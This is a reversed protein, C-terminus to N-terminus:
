ENSQDFEGNDQRDWRFSQNNRAATARKLTTAGSLGLGYQPAETRHHRQWSQKLIDAPLNNINAQIATAALAMFM